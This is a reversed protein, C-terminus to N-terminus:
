QAEIYPFMGIIQIILVTAGVMQISQPVDNLPFYDFLAVLLLLGSELFLIADTHMRIVHVIDPM